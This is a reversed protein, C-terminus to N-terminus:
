PAAATARAEFLELEVLLQQPELLAVQQEGPQELALRELVGAAANSAAIRRLRDCGAASRRDRPATGRRERGIRELADPGVRQAGGREPHERRLRDGDDVGLM